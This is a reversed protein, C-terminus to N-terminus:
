FEPIHGDNPCFLFGVTEDDVSNPIMRTNGNGFLALFGLPRFEGLGRRPNRPDFNWDDPKTWVVAQDENAEVVLITNTTGDTFEAFQTGRGDDRFAARQMPGDRGVVALYVTESVGAEAGPALYVEPMQDILQKNHRSDWPEDLKFKKYLEGQEMFPLIHVRWSLLPRGNDDVNFAPPLNRFTDHHNHMAMGIRKLQNSSQTQMAAQRAASFAPILIALHVLLMLSGICGLVIGAIALGQGSVRGQSRNVDRLALAGLIVAPIGVLVSLCLSLIGLM